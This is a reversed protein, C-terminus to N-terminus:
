DITFKIPRANGLRALYIGAPLASINVTEARSGSTIEKSYVKRGSIEFVELFAGQSKMQGFSININGNAYWFQHGSGYADSIGTSPGVYIVTPLCLEDNSTDPDINNQNDWIFTRACFDVVGSDIGWYTWVLPLLTVNYSLGATWSPEHFNYQAVREGNAFLVILLTDYSSSAIATSGFNQVQLQVHTTDGPYFMQNAVVNMFATVGIDQSYLGSNLCVLFTVMILRSNM